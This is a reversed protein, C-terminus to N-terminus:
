TELGVQEARYRWRVWFPDTDKLVLHLKEHIERIEALPIETRKMAEMADRIAREAPLSRAQALHFIESTLWTSADGRPHWSDRTVQVARDVLDFRFLADKREEFVPELSALVLPAHTATVLQVSPTQMLEEAVVVLAPLITRQWKPHLHAELEDVLFM